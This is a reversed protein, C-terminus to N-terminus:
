VRKAKRIFKSAEEHKGKLILEMYTNIDSANQKDSNKM